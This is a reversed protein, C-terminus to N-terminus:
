RGAAAPQCSGTTNIGLTRYADRRRWWQARLMGSEMDVFDFVVARNKGPAQRMIRGTEQQVAGAARKPTAMFLQSLHPLDLGERALQTALLIDIKGAQAQDMIEARQRKTMRGTLMAVQLRPAAEKLMAELTELHETRDSLVLSFNGAATATITDIILRNRQRCAILAAILDAYEIEEDENVTFDTEIIKLEPTIIPLDDIGIKYLVPGGAGTVMKTLGDNREPTASCWFRYNAPLRNLTEYFTRAAVRHGEDVFVAGFKGALQELDAAKHLTQILAITLREGPEVQGGAITGIEEPDMSFAAAARDRTQNLLEKTHTIWLSPQKIKAMVHLMVETKGSGCPASLGGQRYKILADAAPQQYDRLQIRSNFEVPPLVLRRDQLEYQIGHQQLLKILHQGYGRPLLLQGNEAQFLEFTEPMNATWKGLRLATEFSPNPLTLQNKIKRLLGAPLQDAPLTIKSDIIIKM